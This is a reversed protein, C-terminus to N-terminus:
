ADPNDTDDDDKTELDLEHDLRRALDDRNLGREIRGDVCLSVVGTEESVVLVVADTEESLGIAARHRTGLAHSLEPDDSLGLICKAALLTDGRIVVAGDHLPTLNTFITRILESSVHADLEIGRETYSGLPNHREIAILAGIRRSSMAMAAEILEDVAKRDRAPFFSRVFRMRGIDTMVKKFENQFVSLFVLIIFIWFFQFILIMAKLEFSRSLLFLLLSFFIVLIFGMLAAFSRTQRLMLFLGYFFLTVLLIELVDKLGINQIALQLEQM